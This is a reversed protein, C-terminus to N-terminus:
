NWGRSSLEVSFADSLRRECATPNKCSHDYDSGRHYNCAKNWLYIAEAHSYPCM